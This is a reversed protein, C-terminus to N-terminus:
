CSLGAFLVNLNFPIGGTIKAHYIPTYNNHWSLHSISDIICEPHVETSSDVMELNQVFVLNKESVTAAGIM